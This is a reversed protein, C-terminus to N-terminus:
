RAGPSPRRWRVAPTGLPRGPRRAPRETGVRVAKGSELFTSGIGTGLTIGVVREHGRAVGFAWEGSTFAEADNVFAFGGAGPLREALDAGLDVGYLSDFKGVGRYWAVGAAYDFPGPVAVGWVSGPGAAVRRAAEALSDLIEAASGDHPWRRVCRDGDVAPAAQRLDVLAATVHTGGIELVPVPEHTM